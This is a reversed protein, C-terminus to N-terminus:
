DDAPSHSSSNLLKKFARFVSKRNLSVDWNQFVLDSNIRAEDSSIPRLGTHIESTSRVIYGARKLHAYTVSQPHLYVTKGSSLLNLVNGLGQQRLHGMVVIDISQLLLDYKEPPMMKKLVECKDPFAEIYRKEIYDGYARHGYSLPIVLAKIQANSEMLPAIFDLHNNTETASNGLLVKFQQRHDRNPKREHLSLFRSAYVVRVDGAHKHQIHKPFLIAEESLLTFFLSSAELARVIRKDRMKKTHRRLRRLLQFIRWNKWKTPHSGRVYTLTRPLFTSSIESLYPVYDGGWFQIVVPKKRSIEELLDILRPVLFHVLVLDSLDLNSSHNEFGCEETEEYSIEQWTNTFEPSDFFSRAHHLFKRDDLIIHHVRM